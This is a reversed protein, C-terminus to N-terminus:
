LLPEGALGAPRATYGDAEPACIASDLTVACMPEVFKLTRNSSPACVHSASSGSDSPPPSRPGVGIPSSNDLRPAHVDIVNFIYACRLPQGSSSTCTVSDISVLSSPETM